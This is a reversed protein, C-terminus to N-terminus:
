HVSMARHLAAHRNQEATGPPAYDTSRVTCSVKNKVEPYAYPRPSEERRQLLWGVVALRKRRTALVEHPVSASDFM